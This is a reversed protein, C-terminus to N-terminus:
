FELFLWIFGLAFEFNCPFYRRDLYCCTRCESRSYQTPIRGAVSLNISFKVSPPASFGIYFFFYPAWSHIVSSLHYSDASAFSWPSGKLRYRFSAAFRQRVRVRAEALLGALENRKGAWHQRLIAYSM